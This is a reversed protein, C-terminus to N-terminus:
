CVSEVCVCVSLVCVCVSVRLFDCPVNCLCACVLCAGGGFASVFCCVCVACACWKPSPPDNSTQAKTKGALIAQLDDLFFVPFLAWRRWV